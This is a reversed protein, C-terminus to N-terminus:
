ESLNKRVSNGACHDIFITFTSDNLKSCHKPRNLMNITSPDKSVPSKLCNDLWTNRLGYIRIYM